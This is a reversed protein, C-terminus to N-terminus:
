KKQEIFELIKIDDPSLPENITSNLNSKPEQSQAKKLSSIEQKLNKLEGSVEKTQNEKEVNRNDMAEVKDILISVAKKLKEISKADMYELNNARNYMYGENSVTRENEQYIISKERPQVSISKEKTACGSFGVVVLCIAVISFRTKITEM